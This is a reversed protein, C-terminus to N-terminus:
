PYESYFKYGTFFRTQGEQNIIYDKKPQLDKFVDLEDIIGIFEASVNKVKDLFYRKGIKLEKSEM